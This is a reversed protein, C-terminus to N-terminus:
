DVLLDKSSHLLLEKMEMLMKRLKKRERYLYVRYNNKVNVKKPLFSIKEVKKVSKGEQKLFDLFIPVPELWHGDADIIPHRLQAHIEASRTTATM